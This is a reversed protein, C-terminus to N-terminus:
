DVIKGEEVIDTDPTDDESVSTETYEGDIVLSSDNEFEGPMGADYIKKGFLGVAVIGTTVAAIKWKNAKMWNLTKKVKGESQTVVPKDNAIHDLLTQKDEESLNSFVADAVGETNLDKVEADIEKVNSVKKSM